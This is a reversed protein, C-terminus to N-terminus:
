EQTISQAHMSTNTTNTDTTNPVASSKFYRINYKTTVKRLDIDPDYMLDPNKEAWLADLRKEFCLITKSEVVSKPLNNWQDVIRVAFSYKRIDYKSNRRLLTYKHGRFKNDPVLPLFDTTVAEDYLGHTIKFTEIMDGRYRRYKLTPIGIKRLRDPYSMSYLGPLYKTARRQVNEVAEIHKKLHPSWVANAYELHPRVLATFLLKFNETDLYEMTRRIVGMISNAKNIKSQMHKEFTLKSDIIVGLDKEEHSIALPNDNMFYIHIGTDKHRTIRMSSTKGPHFRLQSDDSWSTANHIDSQLLVCDQDSFIGKWLKTDDAFIYVESEKITDVITNIFVVFLVPGLVSGQPIGSLVDYWSSPVGNVMVRQKRNGLFGEIWSLVPDSVSYYKLVDLLRSHPVTDFAKMFDCYIVDVCGGMDLIETWKDLVILLQLVTSRGAM